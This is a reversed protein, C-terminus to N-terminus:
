VKKIMWIKEDTEYKEVIAVNDVNSSNKNKLENIIKQQKLIQFM